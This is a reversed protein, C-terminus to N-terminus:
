QKGVKERIDKLTEHIDSLQWSIFAGVLTVVGVLVALVQNMIREEGGDPTAYIETNLTAPTAAGVRSM